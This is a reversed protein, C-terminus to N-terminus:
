LKYWKTSEYGSDMRYYIKQTDTEEFRSALEVNTPKEDGIATKVATTTDNYFEVDDITGEWIGTNASMSNWFHLYRLSPTITTTITETATQWMGTYDSNEFVTATLTTGNKQFEVYYDKSTTYVMNAGSGGLNHPLENSLQNVGFNTYQSLLANIFRLEFGNQAVGAGSVSDTLGVYM